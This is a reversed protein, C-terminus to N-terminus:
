VNEKVQLYQVLRDHFDDELSPELKRAVSDANLLGKEEVLELLRVMQREKDNDQIDIARREIESPSLVHEPRLVEEPKKALHEKLVENAKEPSKVVKEEIWRVEEEPTKKEFKHPEEAM